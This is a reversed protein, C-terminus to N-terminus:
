RFVNLSYLKSDYYTMEHGYWEYIITNGNQGAWIDGIGQKHGESHLSKEGPTDTSSSMKRQRSATRKRVKVATMNPM